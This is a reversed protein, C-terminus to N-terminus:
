AASSPSDTPSSASPPPSAAGLPSVHGPASTSQRPHRTSHMVALHFGRADAVSDAISVTVHGM